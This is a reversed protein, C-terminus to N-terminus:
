RRPLERCPGDRWYGAAALDAQGAPSCLHAIFARVLPPPERPTLLYLSKALRYRGNALNALSPAIGDLAIPFLRRGEVTVQGLTATGFSGVVQELTEANDGDNRAEIADGRALAADVARSMEASLARLLVTDIEYAPRLVLRLPAGDRWTRVRGAYIGVVDAETLAGVGAAVTGDGTYFALPTRAFEVGAADGAEGDKPPRATIAIDIVGRALAKIGGASGLSPLVELRADAAFGAFLREIAAVGAGTGGIRVPEAAPARSAATLLAATLLGAVALLAAGRQRRATRGGGGAVPRAKDIQRM